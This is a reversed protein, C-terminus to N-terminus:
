RKDRTERLCGRGTVKDISRLSWYHTDGDIYM